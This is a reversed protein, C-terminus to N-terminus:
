DALGSDDEGKPMEERMPAAPEDPTEPKLPEEVTPPEPPEPQDAARAQGPLLSLCLLLSLLFATLKKLM